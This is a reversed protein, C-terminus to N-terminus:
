SWGKEGLDWEQAGLLFCYCLSLRLSGSSHQSANLALSLSM